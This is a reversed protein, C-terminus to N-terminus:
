SFRRRHLPLFARKQRSVRRVRRGGNFRLHNWRWCWVRGEEDGHGAGTHSNGRQVHLRWRSSGLWDVRHLRWSSFAGLQSDDEDLQDETRWDGVRMSVVRWLSGRARHGSPLDIRNDFDDSVANCLARCEFLRPVRVTGPVSVRGLDNRLLDVIMLNEARNKTLNSLSTGCAGRRRFGLTRETCHGEDPAGEFRKGGARLLTGAFLVARSLTGSRDLRLLWRGSSRGAISVLGVCRRSVSVGDSLYLEGPLLRGQCDRQSHSCDRRSYSSQAISPNWSPNLFRSRSSTVLERLLNAFFQSGASLFATRPISRWPLTSPPRPKTASSSRQGFVMAPLGTPKRFCRCSKM